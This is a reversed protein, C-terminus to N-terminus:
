EAFVKVCQVMEGARLNFQKCFLLKDELTNIRYTLFYLLSVWFFHHDEDTFPIADGPQLMPFISLLQGRPGEPCVRATQGKSEEETRPDQNWDEM